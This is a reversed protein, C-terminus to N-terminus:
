DDEHSLYETKWIGSKDRKVLYFSSVRGNMIAIEFDHKQGDCVVYRIDKEMGELLGTLYTANSIDSEVDLNVIGLNIDQIKPLKETTFECTMEAYKMEEVEVILMESKKLKVGDGLGELYKETALLTKERDTEFEEEYECGDWLIGVNEINISKGNISFDFKLKEAGYLCFGNAVRISNLSINAVLSYPNNEYLADDKTAHKLENLIKNNIVYATVRYGSGSIVIEVNTAM